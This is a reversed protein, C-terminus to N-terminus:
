QTTFWWVDGETTGADNFPDIRWYYTTNPSLSSSLLISMDIIIKGNEDEEFGVTLLDSETPPNNTGFYIFYEEAGPAPSFRLEGNTQDLFVGINTAGIAPEPNVAKSPSESVQGNSGRGSGGGSSGSGTDSGYRGDTHEVLTQGYM